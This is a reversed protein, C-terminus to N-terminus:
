ARENGQTTGWFPIGFIKGPFSESVMFVSAAMGERSSTGCVTSPIATSLDSIPLLCNALLASSTATYFGEWYHPPPISNVAELNIEFLDEEEEEEEEMEAVSSQTKKKNSIEVHKSSTEDKISAASFSAM